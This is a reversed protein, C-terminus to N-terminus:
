GRLVAMVRSPSPLSEQECCYVSGGMTTVLATLEDLVDEDGAAPDVNGNSLDVHGAVQQDADLWLRDVRGEVAAQLVADLDELISCSGASRIAQEQQQERWHKVIPWTREHLETISLRDPNGVATQKLLGALHLVKRLSGGNSPDTALVLPDKRGNWHSALSRALKQHFREQDLDRDERAGGQGHHIVTGGGSSHFQSHGESLEKGLAQELSTPVDQPEVQHLGHVDGEFLGVQNSSVALVRFNLELRVAQLLPRIRFSLGVHSRTKTTVALAFATISDPGCFIALSRTANPLSAIGVEVNGLGHLALEVQQESAGLKGLRETTAKVIQEYTAPFGRVRDFGRHEPLALFLSARLGEPQQLLAQLDATTPSQPVIKDM